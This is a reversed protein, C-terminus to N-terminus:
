EQKAARQQFHYMMFGLFAGFIPAWAIEIISTTLTGHDLVAYNTLTYITITLAGTLLGILAAKYTTKPRAIYILMYISSIMLGQALVIPLIVTVFDFNGSLLMHFNSSSTGFLIFHWAIDIAAAIVFSLMYYLFYAM